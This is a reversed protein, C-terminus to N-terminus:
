HRGGAKSLPQWAPAVYSTDTSGQNDALLREGPHGLRHLMLNGRDSLYALKRGDPSFVLASNSGTPPLYRELARVDRGRRDLICLVGFTTGGRCTTAISRGDPSWDVAGGVQKRLLHRAGTRPDLLFIRPGVPLHHSYAPAGDVYAIDGPVSWSLAGVPHGLNTLRRLGRGDAGITFVDSPGFADSGATFALRKGDPSWATSGIRQAFPFSPLRFQPTGDPATITWGAIMHQGDPSFPGVGCAHPPDGPLYTCTRITRPGAGTASFALLTSTSPCPQDTPGRCAVAFTTLLPGNVGPFAARGSPTAVLLALVSCALATTLSRKM